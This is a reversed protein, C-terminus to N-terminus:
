RVERGARSGEMEGVAQAPMEYVRYARSGDKEYGQWNGPMELPVSQGQGEKMRKQDHDLEAGGIEVRRHAPDEARSRRRSYLFYLVVGLVILVALAIGVGIGAKAGTSLASSTSKSSGSQGAAATPSTSGSTVQTGSETASAAM